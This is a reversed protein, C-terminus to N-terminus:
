DWKEYSIGAGIGFGAKEANQGQFALIDNPDSTAGDSFVRAKMAEWPDEKKKGSQADLDVGQIAAFFKKDNYEQERKAELTASIESMSLSSELEEYDKWIGLQFVEAELKALDMTSWTPSEKINEKKVEEKEKSQDMKIGAAIDLIKYITKIDFSDEIMEVTNIHPAYQQMTIVSCDLVHALVEDSTEANKIEDFRDMFQRLYKIKLPTIYIKEGYVTEVIASEYIKTAM